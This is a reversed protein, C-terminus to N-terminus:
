GDDPPTVREFVLSSGLGDGLQKVPRWGPPPEPERPEQSGDVARFAGLREGREGCGTLTSRVGAVIAVYAGNWPTIRLDRTTGTEDTVTLRATGEPAIGFLTHRWAPPDDEGWGGLGGNTHWDCWGHLSNTASAPRSFPDPATCNDSEGAAFRWRGGRFAFTIAECWWGPAIDPYLDLIAFSVAAIGNAEDVDLALPYARGPEWPGPPPGDVRGAALADLALRQQDSM